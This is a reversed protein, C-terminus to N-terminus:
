ETPNKEEPESPEPVLPEGGTIEQHLWARAYAWYRDATSKSIGLAQAAQTLTLGGFYRLNVLQAKVPDQTALRSLADDLALLDARPEPAALQIEDLDEQGRDGGHKRTRKRRANDVLIRRMAEAAAAFFHGANDWQVPEGPGILRLYAEHVLATADLTQGPKEQALKHAALRRLEDYVLPLLQDGAHPDGAAVASLLYTIDSMAGLM